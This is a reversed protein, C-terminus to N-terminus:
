QAIPADGGFWVLATARRDEAYLDRGDEGVFTVRMGPDGTAPNRLQALPIEAVGEQVVAGLEYTVRDSGYAR